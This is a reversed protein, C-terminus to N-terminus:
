RPVRLPVDLPQRCRILIVTNIAPYESNSRILSAFSVHDNCKNRFEDLFTLIKSIVSLSLCQTTSRSKWLLNDFLHISPEVIVL